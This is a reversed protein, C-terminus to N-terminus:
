MQSKQRGAGGLNLNKHKVLKDLELMKYMIQM